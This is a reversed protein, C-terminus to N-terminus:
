YVLDLQLNIMNRKSQKNSTEITDINRQLKSINEEQKTIKTQVETVVSKKVDEESKKVKNDIVNTMEDKSTKILKNM